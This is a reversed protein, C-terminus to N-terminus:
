EFATLEAAPGSECCIIAARELGARRHEFAALIRPDSTFELFASRSPYWVALVEDYDDDGTGIFTESANAHWLVRAGLEDLKTAAVAGYKLYEDRDAYRNLNLMVIPSDDEAARAIIAELQQQDPEIPM